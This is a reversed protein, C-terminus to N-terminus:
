PVHFAYEQPVHAQPIVTEAQVVPSQAQTQMLPATEVEVRPARLIVVNAEEAYGSCCCSYFASVMMMIFLLNFLAMCFRQCPSMQPQRIYFMSITPCGMGTCQEDM